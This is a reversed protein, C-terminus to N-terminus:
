SGSWAFYYVSTAPDPYAVSPPLITVVTYIIEPDISVGRFLSFHLFSGGGGGGSLM